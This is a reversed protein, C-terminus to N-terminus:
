FVIIVYCCLRGVGFFCFGGGFFFLVFYISDFVDVFVDVFFRKVM